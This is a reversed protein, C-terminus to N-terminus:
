GKKETKAKLSKPKLLVIDGVAKIANYPVSKEEGKVDIILYLKGNMTFEVDSVPGLRVGQYDIVDLGVLDEKRYTKKM